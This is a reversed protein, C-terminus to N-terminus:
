VTPVLQAESAGSVQVQVQEGQRGQENGYSNERRKYQMAAGGRAAGVRGGASADSAGARRCM